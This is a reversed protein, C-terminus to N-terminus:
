SQLHYGSADGVNTRITHSPVIRREKLDYCVRNNRTHPIDESNSRFASRFCSDSELDTVNKAAYKSVKDNLTKSSTVAVIKRDHVNGQRTKTLHATIGDPVNFEEGKKMSLAFYEKRTMGM